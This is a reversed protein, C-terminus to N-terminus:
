RTSFAYITTQKYTDGPNLITSPFSPQNVSDPFHQMEFCFGAQKQYLEGTKGKLTGDLFNGTYFQMGPETTFARMVRGSTPDYVEAALGLTRGGANLVYNHDYGAPNGGTKEIREGITRPTLFDFPTGQVNRLEGTPIMTDDVPTYKEAFIQVVHSLVDGKGALNFYSHNTLNVPTPKDTTATYEIKIENEDTLTYTVTTNLTGPYGEEGDPSKLAFQVGPAEGKVVSAKWVKKDFGKLGGHLSNPGNNVALTYEKGELTFKGKAIRNAVRGAISGFFPHGKLYPELTNFGLVVDAMKGSKDPVNLSILTAGYTMIKATMGSKNTLTYLDVPTGEATKGFAEKMVPEKKKGQKNAFAGRAAAKQAQATGAIGCISACLV